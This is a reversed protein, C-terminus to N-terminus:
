SAVDPDDDLRGLFVAFARRRQEVQDSREPRTQEFFANCIAQRETPHEDLRCLCACEALERLVQWRTPDVGNMYFDRM